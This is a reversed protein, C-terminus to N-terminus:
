DVLGLEGVTIGGEWFLEIIWLPLSALACAAYPIWGKFWIWCFAGLAADPPPRYLMPVDRTLAYALEGTPIIPPPSWYYCFEYVFTEFIFPPLILALFGINILMYFLVIPLM